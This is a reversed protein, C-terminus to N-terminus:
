SRRYGSCVLRVASIRGAACELYGQQEVLYRGDPREVRLRYRVRELGGTEETEFTDLDISAEPPFWTGLVIEDVVHDADASEWCRGPTVAKFRLPRDLLDKMSAGDRAALARVLRGGPTEAAVGTSDTSM